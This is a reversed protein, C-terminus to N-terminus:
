KDFPQIITGRAISFGEVEANVSWNQKEQANQMVFYQIRCGAFVPTLLKVRLTFLYPDLKHIEKLYDLTQQCLENDVKPRLTQRKQLAMIGDILNAKDLLRLVHLLNCSQRLGELTYIGPWLKFDPFHGTFVLENASIYREATMCLPSTKFNIIRDIMILPYRDPIMYSIVDAGIVFQSADESHPHVTNIHAHHARHNPMM